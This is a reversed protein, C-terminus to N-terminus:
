STSALILKKLKDMKKRSQLLRHNAIPIIDNIFQTSAIIQGNYQLPVEMKLTDIIEIIIRKEWAIMGVRKFGAQRAIQMLTNASELSRAAIHIIPAEMKFWISGTPEARQIADNCIQPTIDYEHTVHLWITEHKKGSQSVQIIIIRGACSSTTYYNDHANIVDLLPLIQADPAGARSADPKGLLHLTKHKKQDFTM